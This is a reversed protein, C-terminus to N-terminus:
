NMLKNIRDKDGDKVKMTKVIASMKPKILISSRIAKDLYGIFHKPNTEKKVLQSTVINNFKIDWINIPIKILM